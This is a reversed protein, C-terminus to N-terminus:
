ALLTEERSNADNKDRSGSELRKKLLENEFKMAEIKSKNEIEMWKVSDRDNKLKLCEEEMEELQKTRAELAEEYFKKQETYDRKLSDHMEQLKDLKEQM